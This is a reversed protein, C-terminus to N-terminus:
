NNGWKLECNYKYPGHRRYAWGCRINDYHMYYEFPVYKLKYSTSVPVVPHHQTPWMLVPKLKNCHVLGTNWMNINRLLKQPLSDLNTCNVSSCSKKTPHTSAELTSPHHLTLFPPCGPSQSSKTSICHLWAAMFKDYQGRTSM